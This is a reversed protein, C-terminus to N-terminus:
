AQSKGWSGVEPSYFETTNRPCFERRLAKRSGERLLPARRRGAKALMIAAAHDGQGLEKTPPTANSLLCDLASRCPKM